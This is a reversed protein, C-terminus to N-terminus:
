NFSKRRVLHQVYNVWFMLANRGDYIIDIDQQNKAECDFRICMVSKLHTHARKLRREGFMEDVAFENEKEKRQSINNNNHNNSKWSEFM